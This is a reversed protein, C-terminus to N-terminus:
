FRVRLRTGPGGFSGPLMGGWGFSSVGSPVPPPAAHHGSRGDTSHILIGGLVAGGFGSMTGGVQPQSWGKVDDDALRTAAAAMWEAEQAEGLAAVPDHDTSAVAELLRRRAEALRTRASAGIAGRRTTIFNTAAGVEAQAAPLAAPLLSRAHDARTAADRSNGLARDLRDDAQELRRMAAFPDPKAAAMDTRAAGAAEEAEALAVSLEKAAAIESPPTAGQTASAAKGAAVDTEVASLQMQVSATAQELQSTLTEVGDLLMDMQGLAEETARVGLAAQRRNGVTL